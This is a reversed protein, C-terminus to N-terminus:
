WGDPNKRFEASDISLEVSDGYKVQVSGGNWGDGYSDVPIITYTEGERLLVTRPSVEAPPANPYGGSSPNGPGYVSFEDMGSSNRIVVKMEKDWLGGGLVITFARHRTVSFTGAALTYKGAPCSM